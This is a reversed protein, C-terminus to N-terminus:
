KGGFLSTGGIITAAIVALEIGAATMVIDSDTQSAILIDSIATLSGTIALTAAKVGWVGIGSLRAAEMNGGVAYVARGFRTYLGVEKAALASTPEDLLLVSPSFSMPNAIQM